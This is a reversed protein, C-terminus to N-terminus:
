RTASPQLGATANNRQWNASKLKATAATVVCGASFAMLEQGIHTRGASHRLGFRLIREQPYLENAVRDDVDYSVMWCASSSRLYSALQEHATYTMTDLYLDSSKTLCPPDAYVFM